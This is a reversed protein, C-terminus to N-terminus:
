LAGVPALATLFPLAWVRNAWPISVLLMLSVWRLGTAKVFHSHSSRVADRYVGKPLLRRARAGNSRRM